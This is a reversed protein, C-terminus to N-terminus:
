IRKLVALLLVTFFPAFATCARRVIFGVEYSFFLGFILLLKSLATSLVM